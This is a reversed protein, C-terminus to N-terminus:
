FGLAATTEVNQQVAAYVTNIVTSTHEISVNIADRLSVLQKHDLYRPQVWTFAVEQAVGDISGRLVGVGFAYIIIQMLDLEDQAHVVTSVEAFGFKRQTAPKAFVHNILAIVQLKRLLFSQHSALEAIQDVKFQQFATLDGNQFISLLEKIAPPTFKQIISHTLIDGLNYIADSLLASVSIDTAIQNQEETTFTAIATSTADETSAQTSYSLMRIKHQFEQLHHQRSREVLAYAKHLQFHTLNHVIQSTSDIKSEVAVLLDLATFVDDNQQVFYYALTANLLLHADFEEEPIATKISQLLPLQKGNPLSSCVQLAFTTFLYPDIHEQLPRIIETFISEFTLQNLANAQRLASSNFLQQIEQTLQFWLRSTRSHFTSFLGPLYALQVIHCPSFLRTPPLCTIIIVCPLSFNM